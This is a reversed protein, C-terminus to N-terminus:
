NFLRTNRKMRSVKRKAQSMESVNEAILPRRTFINWFSAQEQGTLTACLIFRWCEAVSLSPM